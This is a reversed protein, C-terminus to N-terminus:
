NRRWFCVRRRRWRRRRGYFGRRRGRSWRRGRYRGRGRNGRGRGRRNRQVEVADEAPLDPNVPEPAGLVKAVASETKLATVAFAAGGLAFAGRLFSRRDM